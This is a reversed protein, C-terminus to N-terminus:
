KIKYLLNHFETNGPGPVYQDWLWASAELTYKEGLMISTEGVTYAKWYERYDDGQVFSPSAENKSIPHQFFLIWKPLATLIESYITNRYQASSRTYLLDADSPITEQYDMNSARPFNSREVITYKFDVGLTDTMAAYADGVQGGLEVLYFDKHWLQDIAEQLLCHGGANAPMNAGEDKKHISINM